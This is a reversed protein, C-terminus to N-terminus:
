FRIDFGAPPEETSPGASVDSVEGPGGYLARIFENIKDAEGAAFIEVDGGRLNRVWGKLGMARATRSAFWRFGVGQVLGMVRILKKDM